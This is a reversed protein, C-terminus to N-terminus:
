PREVEAEYGCAGCRFRDNRNDSPIPRMSSPPRGQFFCEPCADPTPPDDELRLAEQDVERKDAALKTQETEVRLKEQQIRGARQRRYEEFQERLTM